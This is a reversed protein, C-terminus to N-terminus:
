QRAHCILVQTPKYFFIIALITAFVSIFRAFNLLKQVDMMMEVDNMFPFVCIQQM